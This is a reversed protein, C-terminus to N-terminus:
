WCSTDYRLFRSDEHTQTWGLTARSQVWREARRGAVPRGRHLGGESASAASTGTPAGGAQNPSDPEPGSPPACKRPCDSYYSALVQGQTAMLKGKLTTRRTGCFHAALWLAGAAPWRVSCAPPRGEGSAPGGSRCLWCCPAPMGACSRAVATNALRLSMTTCLSCTVNRYSAHADSPM